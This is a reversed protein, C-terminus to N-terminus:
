IIVGYWLADTANQPEGLNTIRNGGWNMDGTIQTQGDKSVSQSIAASLDALLDNWSEPDAPQGDTAPNWNSPPATYIGNNRPM